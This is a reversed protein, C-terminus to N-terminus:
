TGGKRLHGRSQYVYFFFPAGLLATVAGVPLETPSLITRAVTDTATLLSGGILFSAPLLVIHRNGVWRRAVHAAILDVFGITGTIAICAGTVLSLFFFALLKVRVVSVGMSKAETEGFCCLDLERSLLLAGLFGVVVFPLLLQLYEWGRMAFSGMAWLTIKGADASFVSTLISQFGNFFLSVVMGTLIVTTNSLSVDVQYALGMVLVITGLAFVFAFILQSYQPFLPLSVSALIVISAGFSAGSSVGLTYPSALPNQLISQAMTGSLALGGGVLFSLLMRPLRINWLIVMEGSTATTEWGWLKHAIIDFIQEYSLPFSGIRLVFLCLSCSLLLMCLLKGKM